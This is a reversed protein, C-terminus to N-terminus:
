EEKHFLGVLSWLDDFNLHKKPFLKFTISIRCLNSNM